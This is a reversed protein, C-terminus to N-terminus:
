TRSWARQPSKPRNRQMPSNSREQSGPGEKTSNSDVDRLKPAEPAVGLQARAESVLAGDRPKWAEPTVGLQARAKAVLAARENSPARAFGAGLRQSTEHQASQELSAGSRKARRQPDTDIQEEGDSRARGQTSKSQM